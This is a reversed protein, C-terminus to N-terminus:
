RADRLQGSTQLSFSRSGIDITGGPINTNESQLAQLVRSPSLNLEAM